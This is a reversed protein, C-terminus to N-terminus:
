PFEYLVASGGDRYYQRRQGVERFGLKKYLGRAENSFEHTELWVRSQEPRHRLIESMLLGMLGRRRAEPLTALYTVEWLDERGRIWVAALLRDGEGAGWIQCNRIEVLLSDVTWTSWSPHHIDQGFLRELWQTWDMQSLAGDAEFDIPRLLQISM